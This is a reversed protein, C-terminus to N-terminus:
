LFEYKYKQWLELVNSVLCSIWMRIWIRVYLKSILKEKTKHKWYYWGRFLWFDCCFKTLLWFSLQEVNCSPWNVQQSRLRIVEGSSLMDKFATLSYSTFFETWFTSSQQYLATSVTFCLSELASHNQGYRVFCVFFSNIISVSIICSAQLMGMRYLHDCLM